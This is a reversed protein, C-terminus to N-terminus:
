TRGQKSTGKYSNKSTESSGNPIRGVGTIKLAYSIQWTTQVSAKGPTNRAIAQNNCPVAYVLRTSLLGKAPIRL